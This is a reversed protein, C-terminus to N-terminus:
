PRPGLLKRLAAIDVPKRLVHDIAKMDANLSDVQAGGGTVAILVLACGHEERLQRALERGDIDPLFIDLLVCHPSTERVTALAQTADAATHVDLGEHRLWNALSQLVEPDDDVIVVRTNDGM